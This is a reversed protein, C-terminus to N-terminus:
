SSSRAPQGVAQPCTSLKLLTARFWITGNKTLPTSGSPERRAQLALHVPPSDEDDERAIALLSRPLEDHDAEVEVITVDDHNDESPTPPQHSFRVNRSIVTRGYETRVIYGESEVPYGILVGETARPALKDSEGEELVHCKAGFPRLGSIDPKHKHICEYATMNALKSVLTRNQTYVAYRAAHPWM